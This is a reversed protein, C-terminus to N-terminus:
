GFHAGNGIVSLAARGIYVVAKGLYILPELADLGQFFASATSRATRPEGPLRRRAVPASSRRSREEM